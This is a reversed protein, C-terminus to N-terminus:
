RMYYHNMVEVGVFDICSNNRTQNSKRNTFRLPQIVPLKMLLGQTSATSRGIYVPGDIDLLRELSLVSQISGFVIGM